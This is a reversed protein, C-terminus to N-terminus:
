AEDRRREDHARVKRKYISWGAFPASPDAAPEPSAELDRVRTRLADLEHRLAEVEPTM